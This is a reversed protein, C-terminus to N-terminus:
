ELYMSCWISPNANAMSHLYWHDWSVVKANQPTSFICQPFAHWEAGEVQREVASWECEVMPKIVSPPPVLGRREALTTESSRTGSHFFYGCSSCIRSGITCPRSCSECCFTSPLISTSQSSSASIACTGRSSSSSSSAGSSRNTKRSMAGPLNFRRALDSQLAAADIVSKMYDNARRHKM